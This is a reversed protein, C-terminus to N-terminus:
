GGQPEQPLLSGLDVTGGGSPVGVYFQEQEAGLLRFDVRYEADQPWTGPDQTSWLLQSLTGTASVAATVTSPIITQTGNTMRKTLTFTIEGSAPTGDANLFTHTITAQTFAM